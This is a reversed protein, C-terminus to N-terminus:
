FYTAARRIRVVDGLLHGLQCDEGSQGEGWMKRCLKLVVRRGADVGGGM